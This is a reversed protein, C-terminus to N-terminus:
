SNHRGYLDFLNRKDSYLPLYAEGLFSTYNGAGLKVFGKNLDARVETNPLAYDLTPVSDNNLTKPATWVSYNVTQKKGSADKLEPQTNVKNAEKIDPTYEKVIQINRTVTDPKVAIKQPTATKKAPTSAPKTAASDQRPTNTKGKAVPTAAQASAMCLLLGSIIFLARKMIYFSNHTM